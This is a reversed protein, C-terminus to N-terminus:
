GWCSILRVMVIGSCYDQHLVVLSTFMSPLDLNWNM